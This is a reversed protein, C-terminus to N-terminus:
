KKIEEKLFNLENENFLHRVMILLKGNKENIITKILKNKFSLDKKDQTILVMPEIQKEEAVTFVNSVVIKWDEPKEGTNRIQEHAFGIAGRLDEVDKVVLLIRNQEPRIFVMSFVNTM